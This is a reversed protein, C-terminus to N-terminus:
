FRGVWSRSSAGLLFVSDVRWECLGQLMKYLGDVDLLRQGSPMQIHVHGDLRADDMLKYLQSCSKSGLNRSAASASMLQM